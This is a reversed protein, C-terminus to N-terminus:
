IATHEANIALVVDRRHESVRFVNASHGDMLITAHNKGTPTDGSFQHGLSVLKSDQIFIFGSTKGTKVVDCRKINTL